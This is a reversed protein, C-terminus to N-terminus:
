VVRSGVYEDLLQSWQEVFRDIHFVKQATERGARGIKRVQEPRALLYQLYEILEDFDNSCFGNVGNVIYEDEGHTNTTVIALGTLMAETRSRPNASAYSPQLFISSSQLFHRYKNFSDFSRDRGIWLIKVKEEARAVGDVNRCAAHMRGAAQVVLVEHRAYDTQPWEDPSMGHRIYRSDPVGWLRHATPSNCVMYCGEVLEKMTESSCGDVLNCGHNIVIKPGDYADRHRLFLYRKAPEQWSWQDLHLIMADTAEHQHSPVWRINDPIPRHQTNWQRPTNSLYYFEAPLKALEYDHATHWPYKLIRYRDPKM